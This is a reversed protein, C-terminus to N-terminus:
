LGNILFVKAGSVLHSDTGTTQYEHPGVEAALTQVKADSDAVAKTFCYLPPFSVLVNVSGSGQVAKWPDETKKCGTLPLSFTTAATMAVIFSLTALRQM